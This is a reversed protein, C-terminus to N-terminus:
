HSGEYLKTYERRLADYNRNLRAVLRDTSQQHEILRQNEEALADREMLLKHASKRSNKITVNLNHIREELGNLEQQLIAQNREASFAIQMFDANRQEFTDLMQRLPGSMESYAGSGLQMRLEESARQLESYHNQLDTSFQRSANLASLSAQYHNLLGDIDAGTESSALSAALGDLASTRAAPPAPAQQANDAASRTTQRLEDFCQDLSELVDKWAEEDDLRGSRFPKFLAKLYGARGKRLEPRNTSPYQSAEVDDKIASAILKCTQALRQREQRLRWWKVGFVVTLVLTAALAEALGYIWVYYSLDM